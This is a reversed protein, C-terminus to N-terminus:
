ARKHTHMHAYQMYEGREEVMGPVGEEGFTCDACGKKGRRTKLPACDEERREGDGCATLEVMERVCQTCMAREERNLERANWRVVM